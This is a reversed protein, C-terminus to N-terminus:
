DIKHYGEPHRLAKKKASSLSFASGVGTKHCDGGLGPIM